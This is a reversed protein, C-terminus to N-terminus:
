MATDIKYENKNNNEKGGPSSETKKEIVTSGREEEPGLREEVELFVQGGIVGAEVEFM